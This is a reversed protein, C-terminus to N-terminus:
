RVLSLGARVTETHERYALLSEGYGRFYQVHVYTGFHLLTTRVPVTLDVQITPHSFDRGASLTTTLSPGNNRGLVLRLQGYGRYEKIDPNEGLDSVYAFLEPVVLLHWGDLAGFAFLPRVYATNVSRSSLGERGNSEHRLGVQVGLWTLGGGRESTPALSEYLLEPQYSSDYFPSSNAGIDWLSRQTFAFQLSRLMRQPAVDLFDLLRYRFSFQFKAAPADPGYLFYVPEYPSLRELFPQQLGAIAPRPRALSTTTERDAVAAEDRRSGPEIDIVMRTEANPGARCSLIYEGPALNEPLSTIYRRIVFMGPALVQASPGEAPSGTAHLTLNTAVGDARLTAVISPRTDLPLDHATPNLIAVSLPMPAGAHLAVPPELVSYVLAAERGLVAAGPRLLFLIVLASFARFRM